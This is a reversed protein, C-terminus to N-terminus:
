RREAGASSERVTLSPEKTVRRAPLEPAALRELLLSAATAARQASGLNVSTLTPSVLLAIETDDMGVVAIDGPVPIDRRRLVNIAAVALLDNACVIADPTSQALLKEIAPV